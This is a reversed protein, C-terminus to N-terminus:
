INHVKNIANLVKIENETLSLRTKEVLKDQEKKTLANWEANMEELTPKRREKKKGMKRMGKMM